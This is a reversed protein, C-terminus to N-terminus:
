PKMLAETIAVGMFGAVMDLFRGVDQGRTEEYNDCVLCAITRGQYQIPSMVGCKIGRESLYEYIGPNSERLADVSEIQISIGKELQNYQGFLSYESRMSEADAPNPELGELSWIVDELPIEEDLIWVMLRDPHIIYSTEELIREIRKKYTLDQTILGAIRLVREDMTWSKTFQNEGFDGAEVRMFTLTCYGPVETPCMTFRVWTGVTPSFSVGRLEEGTEEVQQAFHLLETDGRPSTNLYTDGVLEEPTRNVMKAYHENVYVYELDKVMDQSSDKKMRFLIFGAPMEQLLKQRNLHDHVLQEEKKRGAKLDCKEQLLFFIDQVKEVEQCSVVASASHITASIGDIDRIRQIERHVKRLRREMVETQDGVSLIMFKDETQRFISMDKFEDRIKDAVIAMLDEGMKKDYWSCLDKYSLVEIEAATYIEGHLRYFDDARLFSIMMGLDNQLGTVADLGVRMELQNASRNVVDMDYFFGILGVIEGNDYMPFESSVVTKKNGGFLIERNHHLYGQGAQLVQNEEEIVQSLNLNQNWSMQEITKGIIGSAAGLGFYDLFTKNAGQFRRGKDKWYVAIDINQSLAVWRSANMRIDPANIDCAQYSESAHDGELVMSRLMSINHVNKLPNDRVVHLVRATQRVGNRPLFFLSHEQWMYGGDRTQLRFIDMVTEQGTHSLLERMNGPSIFRKLRERDEKVFRSYQREDEVLASYGETISGVPELESASSLVEITDLDLDILYVTSYQSLINRITSDLKRTRERNDEVTLDTMVVKIISQKGQKSVCTAEVVFYRDSAVFSIRESGFNEVIRNAVSRFRKALVGGEMNLHQNVVSEDLGNGSQVIERCHKNRYILHFQQEQDYLYLAIPQDSIVNVLGARDYFEDEERTEAQIRRAKLSNKLQELPEPRGYYYGQIYECGIQELFHLQEETEVGECLTHVGLDKAMPVISQIICRSREDFDRMFGMDIKIEDFEFNKLTNLSSYGSGFDDMLVMYGSNHFERIQERIREPNDMVTTETIEVRFYRRQLRYKEVTKELIGHPDGYLFDTRSFNVSVPILAIGRDLSARMDEAIKEVMYKDLQWTLGAEELMPVFEAPSLFGYKPDEWRTLAEMCCVKKNLTRVIPQYYVKIHGCELARDINSLIYGRRQSEVVMKEDFVAYRSGLNRPVRHCAMDAYDCAIHVQVGSHYTRYVGARVPLTRGNNLASTEQFIQDLVPGYESKETYAFFKDAGFRASQIEGFHRSLIQAFEQLLVTGEDFGYRRNYDTLGNLDFCIFIPQLGQRLSSQIWGDAHYFFGAMNSLGTLEDYYRNEKKIGKETM